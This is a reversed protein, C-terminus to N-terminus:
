HISNVVQSSLRKKGVRICKIHSRPGVAHVVESCGNFIPKGKSHGASREGNSVTQSAVRLHGYWYIQRNIFFDVQTGVHHLRVRENAGGVELSVFKCPKPASNLIEAHATGGSFSLKGLM